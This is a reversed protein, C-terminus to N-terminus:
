SESGFGLTTPGLRTVDDERIRRCGPEGKARPEVSGLLQSPGQGVRRDEKVGRPTLPGRGIKPSGVQIGDELGAPLFSVWVESVERGNWVGKPTEMTVPAACTGMDGPLTLRAGDPGPLSCSSFYVLMSSPSASPLPFRYVNHVLFPVDIVTDLQSEEAHLRRSLGSV